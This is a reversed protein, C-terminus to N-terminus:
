RKAWADGIVSRGGSEASIEIFNVTLSRLPAMARAKEVQAKACSSEINVKLPKPVSPM